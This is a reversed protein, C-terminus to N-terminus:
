RFSFTVWAITNYIITITETDNNNANHNPKSFLLKDFHCYRRYDPRYGALCTTGDNDQGNINTM